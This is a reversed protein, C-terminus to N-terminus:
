LYGTKEVSFYFDCIRNLFNKEGEQCFSYFKACGLILFSLNSAYIVYRIGRKKM